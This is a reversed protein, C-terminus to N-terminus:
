THFKPEIHEAWIEVHLTNGSLAFEYILLRIEAPLMSFLRSEPQPSTRQRNSAEPLLPLTLRRERPPRPRLLPPALVDLGFTSQAYINADSTYYYKIRQEKKRLRADKRSSWGRKQKKLVKVRWLNNVKIVCFISGLVCAGLALGAINKVQEWPTRRREFPAM